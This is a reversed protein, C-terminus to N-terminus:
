TVEAGAVLTHRLARESLRGHALVTGSEDFLAPLLDPASTDLTELGPTGPALERWALLGDAALAELVRRGHASLPCDPIALLTLQRM